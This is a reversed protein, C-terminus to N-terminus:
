WGAPIAKNLPLHRHRGQVQSPDLKMAAIFPGLTDDSSLNWSSSSDDRHLRVPTDLQIISSGTPNDLFITRTAITVGYILTVLSFHWEHSFFILWFKLSIHCALAFCFGRRLFCSTLLGRKVLCLPLILRWIDNIVVASRSFRRRNCLLAM